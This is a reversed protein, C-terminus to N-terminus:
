RVAGPIRLVRDVERLEDPDLAANADCLRWFQEPDRYFRWALLDLRDGDAVRYTRITPGAPPITRLLVYPYERGERDTYVGQAVSEYRSGRAFM